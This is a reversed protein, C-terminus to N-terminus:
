IDIKEYKGKKIGNMVADLMKLILTKAKKNNLALNEGFIKDKKLRVVLPISVIKDSKKIVVSIMRGSVKHSMRVKVITGDVYGINTLSIGSSCARASANVIDSRIYQRNVKKYEKQLFVDSLLVVIRM